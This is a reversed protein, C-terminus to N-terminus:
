SLGMTHAAIDVADIWKPDDTSCSFYGLQKDVELAAKDFMKSDIGCLGSNILSQKFQRLKYWPFPAKIEVSLHYCTRRENEPIDPNWGSKPEGQITDFVWRQNKAEKMITKARRHEDKSAQGYWCRKLRMFIWKPAFLEFFEDFTYVNIDLPHEIKKPHTLILKAPHSSQGEKPNMSMMLTHLMSEFCKTEIVDQWPFSQTILGDHCQLTKTDYPKPDIKFFDILSSRYIRNFLFSGEVDKFSVNKDNIRVDAKKKSDYMKGIPEINRVTGIHPLWIGKQKSLWNIADDESGKTM